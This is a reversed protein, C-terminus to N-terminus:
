KAMKELLRGAGTQPGAPKEAKMAEAEEIPVILRPFPWPAKHALPALDAPNCADIVRGTNCRDWDYATPATACGALLVFLLYKM